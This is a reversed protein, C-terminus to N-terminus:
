GLAPPGLRALVANNGFSIGPRPQPVLQYSNAVLDNGHGVRSPSAIRNASVSADLRQKSRGVWPMM